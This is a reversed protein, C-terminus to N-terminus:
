LGNLQRKDRIKEKVFHQLKSLQMFLKERFVLSVSKAIGGTLYYKELNKYSM